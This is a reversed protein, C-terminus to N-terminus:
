VNHTGPLCEALSTADRAGRPLNTVVCLCVSIYLSNIDANVSSLYLYTLFSHYFNNLTCTVVPLVDDFLFIHLTSNM